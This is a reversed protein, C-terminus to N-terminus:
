QPSAGQKSLARGEVKMRDTAPSDQFEIKSAGPQTVRWARRVASRDALLARRHSQGLPGLISATSSARVHEWRMVNASGAPRASLKPDGAPKTM